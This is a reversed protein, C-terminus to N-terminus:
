AHEGSTKIQSKNGCSGAEKTIPETLQQGTGADLVYITKTNSETYDVLKWVLYYRGDDNVAQGLKARDVDYGQTAQEQSIANSKLDDINTDQTIELTGESDGISMIWNRKYSKGDSDAMAPSVSGFIMVVALFFLLLTPILVKTM